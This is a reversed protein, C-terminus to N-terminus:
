IRACRRWGAYRGVVAAAGGAARGGAYADGVEVSKVAEAVKPGDGGAELQLYQQLAAEMMRYGDLPPEVSNLVAQVDGAHVVQKLVFQPLDYKKSQVDIGFKFHKPNVRGVHLDSIYRMTAVTLAADCEARNADTSSKLVNVRYSWRAADYDAPNLGKQASGELAKIM